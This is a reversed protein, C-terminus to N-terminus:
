PKGGNQDAPPQAINKVPNEAPSTQDNTAAARRKEATENELFRLIHRVLDELRQWATDSLDTFNSDLRSRHLKLMESKQLSREVLKYNVDAPFRAQGSGFDTTIVTKNPAFSLLSRYPGKKVETDLLLALIRNDDSIMIVGWSQFLPLEILPMRINGLVRFGAETLPQKVTETFADSGPIAYLQEDSLKNVKFFDQGVGTRSPKLLSFRAPLPQMLGSLLFYLVGSGFIAKHTFAQGSQDYFWWFWVAFVSLTILLRRFLSKGGYSPLRPAIYRQLLYSARVTNLAFALLFAIKLQGAYVSGPANSYVFAAALLYAPMISVFRYFQYFRAVKERGKVSIQVDDWGKHHELRIRGLTYHNIADAMFIPVYSLVALVTDLPGEVWGNRSLTIWVATCGVFTTLNCTLGLFFITKLKDFGTSSSTVQNMESIIVGGGVNQM